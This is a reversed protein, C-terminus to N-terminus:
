SRRTEEWGAGDTLVFRHGEGVAHEPYGLEFAAVPGVPTETAAWRGHERVWWCPDTLRFPEDGLVLVVSAAALSPDVVVVDVEIVRVGERHDVMADLGDRHWPKWWRREGVREGVRDLRARLEHIRDELLRQTWEDFSLRLQTTDALMGYTTGVQAEDDLLLPSCVSEHYAVVADRVELALAYSGPALRAAPAGAAVAGRVGDM